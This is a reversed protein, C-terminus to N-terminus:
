KKKDVVRTGKISNLLHKFEYIFTYIVCGVCIVCIKENECGVIEGKWIRGILQEEALYMM